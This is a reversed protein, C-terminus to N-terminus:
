MNLKRNFVLVELSVILKNCFQVNWVNHHFLFVASNQVWM